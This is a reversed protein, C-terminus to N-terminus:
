GAPWGRTHWVAGDEAVVLAEYGPRGAIWRLADSGMAFAATAYADVRALRPGTVSVSILGGAPSGTFPDVIHAGREPVGSTAVALDSGTAVSLLRTADRPDAIGVRWPEGPAQEGVIQLDGGGNIVHNRSGAARLLDSAREIAWGKVVGTPDIAAGRRAVFYGGTEHQLDASLDLVEAVTPDADRVRLEGRNIRSIDSDDRYTSFVADARHLWRVVDAIPGAWDGGDRIDVTFVTGM